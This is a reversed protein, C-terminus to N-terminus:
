TSGLSYIGKRIFFPMELLTFDECVHASITYNTTADIVIFNTTESNHLVFFFAIDYVVNKM